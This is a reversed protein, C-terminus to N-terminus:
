KFEPQHNQEEWGSLTVSLQIESAEGKPVTGSLNNTAGAEISVTASKTYTKTWEVVGTTGKRSLTYAVTLTYDGPVLYLNNNSSSLTTESGAVLSSWGTGDTYGNGTRINYVGSVKPTLKTTVGSLTYGTPASFTVTGIRAFIHTFVLTNVEGYVPTEQYSCVIDRDNTASITCTGNSFSMAVSSGFFHYKPNIEPWMKDARFLGGTQEKSFNVSAFAVSEGSTGPTGKTATVYISTLNATTVETVKTQADARLLEKAEFEILKKDSAYTAKNYEGQERKACSLAIAFVIVM